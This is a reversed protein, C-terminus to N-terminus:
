EAGFNVGETQHEMPQDFCPPIADTKLGLISLRSRVSEAFCEEESARAYLSTPKVKALAAARLEDSMTALWVHGLEHDLIAIPAPQESRAYYGSENLENATQLRRESRFSIVFDASIHVTMGDPSTWADLTGSTSQQSSRMGARSWDFMVVKPPTFGLYDTAQFVRKVVSAVTDLQYRRDLNDPSADSITPLGVFLEVNNENVVKLWLQRPSEDSLDVGEPRDTASVRLRDPLDHAIAGALAQSVQQSDPPELGRDSAGRFLVEAFGPSLRDFM